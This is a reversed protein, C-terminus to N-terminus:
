PVTQVGTCPPILQIDIGKPIPTECTYIFLVHSVQGFPVGKKGTSRIGTPKM